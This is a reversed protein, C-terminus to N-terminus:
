VSYIKKIWSWEKTLGIEIDSNPNFNLDREAKQIAAFTHIVDGKQQSEWQIEVKRHSVTELLPIIDILKKRNGGGLNYIEGLKGNELASLSAEIIDDVYTFDRTQSGDGFVPIPKGGLIAKFFKHFAMDPRQRPGFVTFFRLSVTPIGYNQFYLSCLNEAALKSVGYPSYPYLPSDETMPLNPCLGYVSSSSAYIIKKLSSANKAAELLKQTALINNDLYISFDRGWSSRV